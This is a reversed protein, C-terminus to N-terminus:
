EKGAIEEAVRVLVESSGAPLAGDVTLVAILVAGGVLNVVLTVIWLRMLRGWPRTRRDEIAAAVPDFFNETFLETRGVILFVIGIAFALAGVITAVGSGLTPEVLAETVGLAVIGFVITVGAIFGTTMKRVPSMGLRRRGEAVAREYIDDPDPAVAM